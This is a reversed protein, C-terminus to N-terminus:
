QLTNSLRLRELAVKQSLNDLAASRSDYARVAAIEARQVAVTSSRAAARDFQVLLTQVNSLTGSALVAALRGASVNM